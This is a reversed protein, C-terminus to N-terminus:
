RMFFYKTRQNQENGNKASYVRHLAASEIKEGSAHKSPTFKIAEINHTPQRVSSPPQTQLWSRAPDVSDVGLFVCLYQKIISGTDKGTLASNLSAYM